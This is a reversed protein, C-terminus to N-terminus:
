TASKEAAKGGEGPTLQVWGEAWHPTLASRLQFLEERPESIEAILGTQALFDWSGVAPINAAPPVWILQTPGKLVEVM